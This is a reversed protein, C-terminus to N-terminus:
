LQGSHSYNTCLIDVLDFQQSLLYAQYTIVISEGEVAYLVTSPTLM